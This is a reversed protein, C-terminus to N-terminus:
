TSSRISYKSKISSLRSVNSDVQPIYGSLTLAICGHKNWDAAVGEAVAGSSPLYQISGDLAIEM